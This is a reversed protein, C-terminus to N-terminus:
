NKKVILYTLLYSAVEKAAIDQGRNNWHNNGGGLFLEQPNNKLFVNFLNVKHINNIVCINNVADTLNRKKYGPYKELDKYSAVFNETLDIVSPQILVLFGVSKADAIKKAKKLIAEMLKKKTTTSEADPFIAVDLDYHDAFHSYKKPKEQQYVSYEAENISIHKQIWDNNLAKNKNPLLQNIVNRASRVLFLSSVINRFSFKQVPSEQLREETEIKFNTETLQGGSDLAFLRNRIIDGFDNDAFIHFIVLDPNYMDVEKSFRILSQDPGFGVVGANLVEINEKLNSGLYKELKYPFTDQLSSFRAQLNSDGYVIIRIDPAEKFEEGRFSHKNTKWTIEHLGNKTTRSYKKQINPKLSVLYDKNFQFALDKSVPANPPSIIENSFIRLLIESFIFLALTIGFVILVKNSGKNINM